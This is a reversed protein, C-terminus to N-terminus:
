HIGRESAIGWWQINHHSKTSFGSTRCHEGQQGLPCSCTFKGGRPYCRGPDQCIAAPQTHCAHHRCETLGVSLKAEELLDVPRGNLHLEDAMM